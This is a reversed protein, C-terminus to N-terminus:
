AGPRLDELVTDVEKKPDLGTYYAVYCHLEGLAFEFFPSQGPPAGRKWLGTRWGYGIVIAYRIELDQGYKKKLLQDAVM